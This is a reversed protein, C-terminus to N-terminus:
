KAFSFWHLLFLTTLRQQGDLPIFVKESNQTQEKGYIFNLDLSGESELAMRMDNLLNRRADVVQDKRRGQVYDRQIIPIRISVENILSWFTMERGINNM